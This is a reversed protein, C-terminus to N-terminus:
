SREPKVNPIRYNKDGMRVIVDGLPPTARADREIEIIIRMRSPVSTEPAEAAIRIDSVHRVEALADWVAQEPMGARLVVSSRQVARAAPLARPSAATEKLEQLAHLPDGTSFLRERPAF